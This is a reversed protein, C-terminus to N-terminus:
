FVTKETTSKLRDGESLLGLSLMSWALLSLAIVSIRQGPKLLTSATPILQSECPDQPDGEAFGEM